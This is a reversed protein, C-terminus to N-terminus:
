FINGLKGGLTSLLDTPDIGFKSLLGAHQDTDVKDPLESSAQEAKDSQGKDRLFQVIQDKDINM